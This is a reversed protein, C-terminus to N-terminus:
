PRWLSLPLRRARARDAVSPAARGRRLAAEATAQTRNVDSAFLSSALGGVLIVMAVGLIGLAVVTEILTFLLVELNPSM